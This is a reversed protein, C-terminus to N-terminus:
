QPDLILFGTEVHDPLIRNWVVRARGSGWHHAFRAEQGPELTPCHHIARFGSENIDLLRGDLELPAPEDLSLRVPGGAAKRQATRREQM